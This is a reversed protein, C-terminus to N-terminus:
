EKKNLALFKSSQHNIRGISSLMIALSMVLLIIVDFSLGSFCFSVFGLLAPLCASVGFLLTSQIMYGINPKKELDKFAILSFILWDVLSITMFPLLLDFKFKPPSLSVILISCIGVFITQLLYVFILLESLGAALSNEGKSEIAKRLNKLVLVSYCHQVALFEIVKVLDM